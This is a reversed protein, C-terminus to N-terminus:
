ASKRGTRTVSAACELSGAGAAVTGSKEFNAIEGKALDVKWSTGARVVGGHDLVTITVAHTAPRAVSNLVKGTAAWKGNEAHCEFEVLSRQASEPRPIQASKVVVGERKDDETAGSCGSVVLALAALASAQCAAAVRGRRRRTIVLVEFRSRM